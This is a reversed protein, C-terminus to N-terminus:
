STKSIEIDSQLKQLHVHLAAHECNQLKSLKETLKQMTKLVGRFMFSYFEFRLNKKHSSVTETQVHQKNESKMEM